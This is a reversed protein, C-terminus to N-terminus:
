GPLSGFLGTVLELLWELLAQFFSQFGELLGSLDFPM